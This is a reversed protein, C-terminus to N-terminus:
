PPEHEFGTTGSGLATNLPDVLHANAIRASESFSIGALSHQADSRATGTKGTARGVSEWRSTAARAISSAVVMPRAQSNFAWKRPSRSDEVARMWRINIPGTQSDREMWARTLTAVSM